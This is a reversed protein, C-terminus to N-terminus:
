NLTNTLTRYTSNRLVILPDSALMRLLYFMECIKRILAPPKEAIKMSEFIERRLSRKWWAVNGRSKRDIPWVSIHLSNNKMTDRHSIGFSGLDEM